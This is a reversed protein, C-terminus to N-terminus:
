GFFILELIYSSIFRLMGLSLKWPLTSQFEVSQAGFCHSALLEFGYLM